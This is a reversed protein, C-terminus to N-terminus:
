CRLRVDLSNKKRLRRCRLSVLKALKLSFIKCSISYAQGAFLRQTYVGGEKQRGGRRKGDGAVIEREKMVGIGGWWDGGSQLIMADLDVM